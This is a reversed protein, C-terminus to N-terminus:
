AGKLTHNNTESEAPPPPPEQILGLRRFLYSLGLMIFLPVLCRAVLMLTLILPNAGDM